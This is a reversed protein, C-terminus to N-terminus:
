AFDSLMENANLQKGKQSETMWPRPIRYKDADMKGEKISRALRRGVKGLTTTVSWKFLSYERSPPRGEQPPLPDFKFSLKYAREDGVVSNYAEVLAILRAAWARCQAGADEKRLQASEIQEESINKNEVQNAYSAAVGLYRQVAEFYRSQYSTLLDLSESILDSPLALQLFEKHRLREQDMQDSHDGCVLAVECAGFITPANHMVEGILKATPNIFWADEPKDGYSNEAKTWTWSNNWFSMDSANREDIDESPEKNTDPSEHNDLLTLHDISHSGGDDESNGVTVPIHTAQRKAEAIQRQAEALEEELMAKTKRSNTSM